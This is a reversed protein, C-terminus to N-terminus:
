QPRQIRKNGTRIKRMKALQIKTVDNEIARRNEEERRAGREESRGRGTEDRSALLVFYIHGGGGWGLVNDM